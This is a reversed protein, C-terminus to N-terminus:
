RLEQFNMVRGEVFDGDDAHTEDASRQGPDQLGLVERALDRARAPAPLREFQRELETDDIMHALAHTMRDLVGVEHDERRGDPSKSVTTRSIAGCRFFPAIRVSTPLTLPLGRGCSRLAEERPRASHERVDWRPCPFARRTGLRRLRQELARVANQRRRFFRVARASSATFANHVAAPAFTTMM